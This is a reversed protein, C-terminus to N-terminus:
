LEMSILPMPSHHTNSLQLQQRPPSSRMSSCRSMQHPRIIRRCRRLAIALSEQNSRPAMSAVRSLKSRSRSTAEGQEAVRSSVCYRLEHGRPVTRSASRSKWCDWFSPAVVITAMAAPVRTSVGLASCFRPFHVNSPILQLYRRRRRSTVVLPCPRRVHGHSGSLVTSAESMATCWWWSSSISSFVRMNAGRGHHTPPLRDRVIRSILLNATSLTFRPGNVM